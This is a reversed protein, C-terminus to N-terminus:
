SIGDSVEDWDDDEPEYSEPQVIPGNPLRKTSKPSIALRGVEYWTEFPRQQNDIGQIMVRPGADAYLCVAMIIGSIGTITDKGKNGLLEHAHVNRRDM